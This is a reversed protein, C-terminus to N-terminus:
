TFFERRDQIHVERLKRMQLPLAAPGSEKESVTLEVVPNSPPLPAPFVVVIPIIM